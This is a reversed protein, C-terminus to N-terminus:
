RIGSMIVLNYAGAKGHNKKKLIFNGLVQVYVTLAYIYM